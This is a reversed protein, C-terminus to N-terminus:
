LRSCLKRIKLSLRTIYARLNAFRGRRVAAATQQIKKADYFGDADEETTASVAPEALIEKIEVLEDLSGDLKQPTDTGGPKDTVAEIMHTDEDSFLSSSKEVLTTVAPVALAHRKDAVEDLLDDSKEPATPAQRDETLAEDMGTDEEGSSSDVSPETTNILEYEARTGEVDDEAEVIELIVNTQKTMATSTVKRPKVEVPFQGRAKQIAAQEEVEESSFRGGFWPHAMIQSIPLRENPAYKFIRTLLDILEDAEEPPTQHEISAWGDGDASEGPRLEDGEERRRWAMAKERVLKELSNSYGASQLEERQEEFYEPENSVPEHAPLTEPIWGQKAVFGPAFRRALAWIDTHFGFPNTTGQGLLVEPAAFALPIGLYDPPDSVEYAQGFDTLAINLSSHEPHPRYQTPYVQHAPLHPGPGEGTRPIPELITFHPGPFMDDIKRIDLKEPHKIKFLINSTRFDGHCIGKSHLYAMARVMQACIDKLVDPQGGYEDLVHSISQGALPLVFCLHSGNPGEELFTREALLIHNQDLESRSTEAFHRLALVEGSCKETSEATDQSGIVKIVVWHGTQGDRCLWVTAFGGSGLKNRVVYRGGDLKDGISIPHLGAPRYWDPDELDDDGLWTIYGYSQHGDNPFKGIPEDSKTGTSESVQPEQGNNDTDLTRSSNEIVLPQTGESM